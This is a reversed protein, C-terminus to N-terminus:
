FNVLRFRYKVIGVDSTTDLKAAYFIVVFIFDIGFMDTHMGIGVKVGGLNYSKSDHAIGVM